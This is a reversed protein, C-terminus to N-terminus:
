KESWLCNDTIWLLKDEGKTYDRKCVEPRNGSKHESCLNNETLLKCQSVVILYRGKKYFENLQILIMEGVTKFGRLGMYWENQEDIRDVAIVQGKKFTTHPNIKIRIL